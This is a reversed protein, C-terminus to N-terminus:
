PPFPHAGDRNRIRVVYLNHSRGEGPVNAFGHGKDFGDACNKGPRESTKKRRRIRTLIRLSPQAAAAFKQRRFMQAAVLALNEVTIETGRAAAFDVDNAPVFRGIRQDENLHLRPARAVKAIRGRRDVQLLLIKDRATREGPQPHQIIWVNRKTEVDDLHDNLVVFNREFYNWRTGAAQDSHKTLLAHFWSASM